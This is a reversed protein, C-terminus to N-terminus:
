CDGTMDDISGERSRDPPPTSRSNINDASRGGDVVVLRHPRRREDLTPPGGRGDRGPSMRFPLCPVRLVVLRAFGSRRAVRVPSRDRAREPLGSTRPPVWAPAATAPRRHVGCRHRQSRSSRHRMSRRARMVAPGGRPRRARIDGRPSCGSRTSRGSPPRVTRRRGRVAATGRRCGPTPRHEMPAAARSSRPTSLRHQGPEPTASPPPTTVISQATTSSSPPEKESTRVQGCPPAFGPSHRRRAPRALSPGHGSELQHHHRRRCTTNLRQGSQHRSQGRVEPQRDDDHLVQVRPM